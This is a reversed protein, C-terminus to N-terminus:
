ASSPMRSKQRDRPSPSTYLLCTVREGVTLPFGPDAHAVVGDQLNTEAGISAAELESRVVVGFWLSAHSEIRVQGAVVVDDALFATEHVQPSRDNVTLLRPM